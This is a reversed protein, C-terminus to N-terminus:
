RNNVSLMYFAFFILSFLFAGAAFILLFGPYLWKALSSEVEAKQPNMPDYKIRISQGIRHSTPMTGYSSEFRVTEGSITTFEITPCYVGGSGPNFIRKQLAIVVGMTNVSKIDPRFNPILVIIGMVFCGVALIFAIISIALFMVM